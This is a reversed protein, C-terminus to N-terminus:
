QGLRALWPGFTFIHAILGLAAISVVSRVAIHTVGAGSMIDLAYTIVVALVLSVAVFLEALHLVFRRKASTILAERDSEM